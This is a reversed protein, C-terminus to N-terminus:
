SCLIFREAVPMMRTLSALTDQDKGADEGSIAKVQAECDATWSLVLPKLLIQLLAIALFLLLLPLDLRFDKVLGSVIVSLTYFQILNLFATLAVVFSVRIIYRKNGRALFLLARNILM